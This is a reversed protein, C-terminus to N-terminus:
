KITQASIEAWKKPSFCQQSQNRYDSYYLAGWIPTKPYYYLDSTSMALISPFEAAAFHKPCYNQTWQYLEGSINNVIMVPYVVLMAGFGLPAGTRIRSAHEFLNNSYATAWDPNINDPVHKIFAYTDVMGFKTGELRGRYYMADIGLEHQPTQKEFAWYQM